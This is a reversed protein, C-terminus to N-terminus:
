LLKFSIETATTLKSPSQRQLVYPSRRTRSCCFSEHLIASQESDEKLVADATTNETEWTSVPTHDADGLHQM